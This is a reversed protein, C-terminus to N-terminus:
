KKVCRVMSYDGEWSASPKNMSGGYFNMVQEHEYPDFAVWYSAEKDSQIPFDPDLCGKGRGDEIRGYIEVCNWFAEWMEDETPLRGDAETCIQEAEALTVACPVQELDTTDSYGALGPDSCDEPATKYASLWITNDSSTEPPDISVPDNGSTETKTGTEGCGVFTATLIGALAFMKFPTM